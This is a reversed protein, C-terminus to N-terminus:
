KKKYGYLPVTIYYGSGNNFLQPLILQTHLEETQYTTYGIEIPTKVDLIYQSAPLSPPDGIFLVKNPTDNFYYEFNLSIVKSYVTKFDILDFSYKGGYVITNKVDTGFNSLIFKLYLKQLNNYKHLPVSPVYRECGFTVSFPSKSIDNEWECLLKLDIKDTIITNEGGSIHYNVNSLKEISDDNEKKLGHYTNEFKVQKIEEPIVIEVGTKNTQVWTVKNTTLSREVVKNIDCRPSITVSSNGAPDRYILNSSDFPLTLTPIGCKSIGEDSTKVFEEIIRYNFKINSPLPPFTNVVIEYKAIGGLLHLINVSSGHDITDDPNLKSKFYFFEKTNGLVNIPFKTEIKGFAPDITSTTPLNYNFLYSRRSVPPSVYFITDDSRNKSNTDGRGYGIAIRLNSYFTGSKMNKMQIPILSWIGNDKPGYTLNSNKDLYYDGDVGGTPLGTGQITGLSALPWSGAAKPGYTLNYNKDLYYEGDSGISNNPLGNGQITNGLSTLPWVGNAKPGYTLNSNTDLYYERDVGVSATPLGTGQNTYGNFIKFDSDQINEGTSLIFRTTNEINTYFSILYKTDGYTLFDQLTYSDTQNHKYKTVVGTKSNSPLGIEGVKGIDGPNGTPGVKGADGKDGPNGPIGKNGAQGQIGASGHVGLKAFVKSLFGNPGVFGDIGSSSDGQKIDEPANIRPYIYDNIGFIITM